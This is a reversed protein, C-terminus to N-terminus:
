NSINSLIYPVFNDHYFTQLAAINSEWLPNKPIKILLHSKTTQIFLYGFEKKCLYLTPWLFRM